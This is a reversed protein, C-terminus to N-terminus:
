KWLDNKVVTNRVEVIHVERNTLHVDSLDHVLWEWLREEEECLAGRSWLICERKTLHM